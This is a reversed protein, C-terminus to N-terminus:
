DTKKPLFCSVLYTLSFVKKKSRAKVGDLWNLYAYEHDDKYESKFYSRMEQHRLDGIFINNMIPTPGHYM